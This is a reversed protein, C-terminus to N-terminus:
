LQIFIYGGEGYGFLKFMHFYHNSIGKYYTDFSVKYPHTQSPDVDLITVQGTDPDYGGVPSIHPIHLGPIFSGQDFHSLILCDGYKEFQFLRNKLQNKIKGSLNVDRSAQVKEIAGYQIKYVDLAHIVVTELVALPLGRRGKYGHESMREKWHATRVRNLLDQQSVASQVIMGANEQLANVICAVSAVSCSSEHYQKVHHKFLLYKLRNQLPAHPSQVSGPAQRKHPGTRFMKEVFFQGYLLLRIVWRIIM